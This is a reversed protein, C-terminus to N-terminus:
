SEFDSPNEADGNVQMGSPNHNERQTRKGEPGEEGLLVRVPRCHLVPTDAEEGAQEEETGDQKVFECMTDYGLVVLDANNRNREEDKPSQRANRAIRGFRDLFEVNRNSSRKGTTKQSAKKKGRCKEKGGTLHRSCWGGPEPLGIGREGEEIEQRPKWQIASSNQACDNPPYRFIMRARCADGARASLQHGVSQHGASSEEKQLSIPLGPDPQSEDAPEEKVRGLFANRLDSHTLREGAEVGSINHAMFYWSDLPLYRKFFVAGLNQPRAAAAVQNEVALAEHAHHVDVHEIGHWPFLPSLIGYLGRHNRPLTDKPSGRLFRKKPQELPQQSGVDVLHGYHATRFIATGVDDAHDGAIGDQTDHLVPCLQARYDRSALRILESHTAGEQTQGRERVLSAALERCCIARGDRRQLRRKCPPAGTRRASWAAAAAHHLRATGCPPEGGAAASIEACGDGPDAVSGDTRLCKRHVPAARRWIPFLRIEAIAEISRRGM